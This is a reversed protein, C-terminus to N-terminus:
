YQTPGGKAALVARVQPPMSEVLGRLTQEPIQCWSTWLLDNLDQLNRPPAEMSQVQKDLVDWLHEVPNLDLSNPPWALVEFENNPEEFSEQVMKAKHCPANDQQFFGCGDRFVTGHFPTCWPDDVINTWPGSNKEACQLPWISM